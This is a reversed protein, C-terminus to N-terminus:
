IRSGEWTAAASEAPLSEANPSTVPTLAIADTHTGGITPARESRV